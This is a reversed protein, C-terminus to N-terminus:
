TLFSLAVCRLQLDDLDASNFSEGNIYSVYKRNHIRYVTCRVESEVAPIGNHM